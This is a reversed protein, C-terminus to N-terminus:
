NEAYYTLRFFSGSTSSVDTTLDGNTALECIAITGALTSGTQIVTQSPRYGAPMNFSVTSNSGTKMAILLTVIGQADKTYRTTLSGSYDVWSNQYTVTSWSPTVTNTTFSPVIPVSATIASSGIQLLTTEAGGNISESIRLEGTPAAAGQIPITQLEYRVSQSAATANTKWGYGELALTPSYKQNGSTAATRNQLLLGLTGVTAGVGDRELLAAGDQSWLSWSRTITANTGATPAATVAVTAADSITSAGVFAYTPARVLVARQTTIAGTAHEVIRNLALDVDPVETSATQGTNAAGTLTLAVKAGSTAANPTWLMRDTYVQWIDSGDLRVSAYSGSVPALRVYSSTSGLVLSGGANYVQAAYLGAWHHTSDGLYSNNDTSPKISASFTNSSGGFTSAGTTTKFTGSSGSLDFNGSASTAGNLVPATLTKNSLTQTVSDTSALSVTTRSPSSSDTLTFSTSFNLQDRQTQDVANSEITQYYSSGGGGAGLTISSGDPKVYKIANSAGSDVWLLSNSSAKTPASATPVLQIGKGVRYAQAFVLSPLLSVLLALKRM